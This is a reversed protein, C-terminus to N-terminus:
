RGVTWAWDIVAACGRVFFTGSALLAFWLVVAGALVGLMVGASRFLGPGPALVDQEPVVREARM